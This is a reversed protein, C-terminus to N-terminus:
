DFDIDDIDQETKKVPKYGEAKFSSKKLLKFVTTHKVGSLIKEVIERADFITSQMGIIAVTKGFVSIQCNLKNEIMHKIKGEKGIVRGRIQEHREKSNRVFDDLDVIELVYNDELLQYAVQPSFGRSIATLINKAVHIEYFSKDTSIIIEGTHSDIELRTNTKDEIERKTLGDEGIIVAIRKKTVKIDDEM